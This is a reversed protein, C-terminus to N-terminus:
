LTVGDSIEIDLCITSLARGIRQIIGTTPPVQTIKGAMTNSLFYTGITLSPSGNEIVNSWDNQTIASDTLFEVAHGSLTDVNCLGVAVTARADAKALKAHGSYHIFIAMGIKVDSDVEATQPTVGGGVGDRGAPGIPGQIGPGGGGSLGGM